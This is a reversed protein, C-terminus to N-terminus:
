VVIANVLIKSRKYQTAIYKRLFKIEWTEMKTEHARIRKLSNNIESQAVHLLIM